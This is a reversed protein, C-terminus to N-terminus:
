LRAVAFDLGKEEWEGGLGTKELSLIWKERAPVFGGSGLLGVWKDLNDWCFRRM